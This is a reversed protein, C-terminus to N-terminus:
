ERFDQEPRRVVSHQQQSNSWTCSSPHVAPKGCCPESTCPGCVRTACQLCQLTSESPFESAQQEQLLLVLLAEITVAAQHFCWGISCTYRATM